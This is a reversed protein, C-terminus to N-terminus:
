WLASQMVLTVLFLAGGLAATLIAMVTLTSIIDRM